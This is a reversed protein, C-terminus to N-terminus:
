HRTCTQCLPLGDSPGRAPRISSSLPPSLVRRQLVPCDHCHLAHFSSARERACRPLPHPVTATPLRLHRVARRSRAAGGPIPMCYRRTQHPTILHPWGANVSRKHRIPFAALPWVLEAHRPAHIAVLICRRRRKAPSTRALAHYGSVFPSPAVASLLARLARQDPTLQAPSCSM